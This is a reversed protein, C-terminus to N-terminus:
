DASLAGYVRDVTPDTAAAARMAPAIMERLGAEDASIPAPRRGTLHDGVFAFADRLRPGLSPGVHDADAHLHYAHRVDLDWLTRHLYEAGDHAHLADRSGADLHIALAADLIEAAHVRARQAPHDARFLVADRDPGVLAAPCQPPYHSRNRPPTAAADTSPEIMPAVAAVAGFVRPRAFAIKLAGYGGMSMGVIGCPPDADTVADLAAGAVASEWAMGRAPDDLYFCWPDVGPCAVRMPPITGDRWGAELLPQIDWLNDATGGGGFLFLCVPLGANTEPQLTHVTIAGHTPHEVTLTSRTVEDAM